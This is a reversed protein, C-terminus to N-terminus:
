TFYNIKRKYIKFVNNELVVKEIWNGVKDYKYRYDKFTYNKRKIAIVNAPDILDDCLFYSKHNILANSNKDYFYKDQIQLVFAKNKKSFQYYSTISDQNRKNYLYTIYHNLSYNNTKQNKIFHKTRILRNNKYFEIRKGVLEGDMRIVSSVCNKTYYFDMEINSNLPYKETKSKIRNLNDIKYAAYYKSKYTYGSFFICSYTKLGYQNFFNIEKKVRKSQKYPKGNKKKIYREETYTSKVKGKLNEKVLDNNKVLAPKTCSVFGFLLVYFISKMCIIKTKM